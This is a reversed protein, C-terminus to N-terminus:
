IHKTHLKGALSKEFVDECLQGIKSDIQKIEPLLAKVEKNGEMINSVFEVVIHNHQINKLRESTLKHVNM